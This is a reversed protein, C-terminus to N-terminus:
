IKPNNAIIVSSAIGDNYSIDFIGDYKKLTVRISEIGFGHNLIDTKTTFMTHNKINLPPSSNKICIKVTSANSAIDIVIFKESLSQCADIANDIANCLITSKDIPSINIPTTINQTKVLYQIGKDIAKECEVNLISDLASDNTYTVSTPELSLRKVSQTLDKSESIANNDIMSQIVAMHEDINHRLKRLENENIELLHYNEEQQRILQRASELQMKTSYSDIFEFVMINFYILGVITILLLIFCNIDNTRSMVIFKDATVVIFLSFLPFLMIMVWYKLSITKKKINSFVAIISLLSFTLICMITMGVYREIGKPSTYSNATHLVLAIIYRGLTDAVIAVFFYILMVTFKKIGVGDFLLTILISWLIFTIVLNLYTNLALFSRGIHILLVISVIAFMTTRKIQQPDLMQRFFILATFLEIASNVIEIVVALNIM